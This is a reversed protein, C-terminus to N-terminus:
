ALRELALEFASLKAPSAAAARAAAIRGVVGVARQLWAADEMQRTKAGVIVIVAVVIVVVVITITIVCVALAICLFVVVAFAFIVVVAFIIVVFGLGLLVDFLSALATLAVALAPVVGVQMVAAFM